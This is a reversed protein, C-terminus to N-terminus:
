VMGLRATVQLATPRGNRMHQSSCLHQLACPLQCTNYRFVKQRCALKVYKFILMLTETM